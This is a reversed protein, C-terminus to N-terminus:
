LAHSVRWTVPMMLIAESYLVNMRLRVHRNAAKEVKKWRNMEDLLEEFGARKARSVATKRMTRSIGYMADVDNESPILDTTEQVKRLYSRFTANYDAPDVLDGGPGCFAPGEFRGEETCVGLLKELWWRPELGSQTWNAVSILHHDVGHHGKFKGLLPIVVHPLNSLAEDPVRAVHNFGEPIIGRKGSEIHKRLGALELYFGEYGRLSAVTCTTIFAGFKWLSNTESPSTAAIADKKVLELLHVIGAIGLAHNASSKYGMRAELGRWFDHYWESQSPCSTPHVRGTGKAFSAVEAVGAPSSEWNKTFTSRLQRLTEAQVYEETRGKATVSERIIDVALGMGVPDGIPFPGRPQLSPTKHIKEANRVLKAIRRRHNTITSRAKGNMADLNARRLTDLYARDWTGPLRGELNIMWCTECQFPMCCHVAEAGSNIRRIRQADKHWPNGDKDM